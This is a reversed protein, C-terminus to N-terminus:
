KHVYEELEEEFSKPQKARREAEKRAEEEEAAKKEAARKKDRADLCSEVIAAIEKKSEDSLAM